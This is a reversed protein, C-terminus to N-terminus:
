RLVLVLILQMHLRPLTRFRRVQQILNRRALDNFGLVLSYAGALVAATAGADHLLDGSVACPPSVRNSSSSPIRFPPPTRYPAPFSLIRSKRLETSLSSVAAAATIRRRFLYDSRSLALLSM